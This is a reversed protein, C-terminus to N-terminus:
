FLPELRGASWLFAARSGDEAPVVRVHMAGDPGLEITAYDREVRNSGAPMQPTVYRCYRRRPIVSAIEVFAPVSRVAHERPGDLFTDLTSAYDVSPATLVKVTRGGSLRVASSWDGAVPQGHVRNPANAVVIERINAARSADVLGTILTKSARGADLWGTWQAGLAILWGVVFLTGIAVRARARMSLLLAALAVASAGSPLLYYRQQFSVAVAPGLFVVVAASAVWVLPPIRSASRRAVAAMAIGVVIAAGFWIRPHGEIVEGQAPLLAATFYDGFRKLGAPGMASPLDIGPGTLAPPRLWVFHVLAIAIMPILGRAWETGNARRRRDCLGLLILFAPLVIASEKSLLAAEFCLFAAIPLGRRTERWRDYVLAGVLVFAACMSDSRGAIWAINEVHYPHIAFLVGALAALRADQTYRRTLIVVLAAVLSVLLLNMLHSLSPSLGWIRNEAWYSALYLPRFYNFPTRGTIGNEVTALNAWDDSLFPLGLSPLAVLGAVAAAIVASHREIFNEAPSNVSERM